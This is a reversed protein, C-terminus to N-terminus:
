QPVGGRYTVKRIVNQFKDYFIWEGNRVGNAIDGESVKTGASNRSIFHGSGHTLDNEQLLRGTSDYYRWKGSYKGQDPQCNAPSWSALGRPLFYGPGFICPLPQAGYRCLSLKMGSTIANPLVNQATAPPISCVAAAMIGLAFLGPRMRRFRTM